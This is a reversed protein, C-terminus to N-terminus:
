NGKKMAEDYWKQALIQIWTKPLLGKFYRDNVIEIVYTMKEPGHVELEERAMKEAQLMLAVFTAKFWEYSFTVAAALALLIESRYAILLDLIARWDM